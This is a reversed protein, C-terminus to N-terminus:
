LVKVVVSAAEEAHKFNSLLARFYSENKRGTLPMRDNPMMFLHLYTTRTKDLYERFRNQWDM